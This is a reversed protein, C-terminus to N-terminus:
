NSALVVFLSVAVVALWLLAATILACGLAGTTCGIATWGLKTARRARQAAEREARDDTWSSERDIM